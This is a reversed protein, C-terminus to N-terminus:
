THYYNEIKSQKLDNIILLISLILLIHYLDFFRNNLTEKRIKLWNKIIDM